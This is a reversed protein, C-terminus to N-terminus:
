RIKEGNNGSWGPRMYSTSASTGVKLNSVGIIFTSRLFLEGPKQSEHLRGLIFM